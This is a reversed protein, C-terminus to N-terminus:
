SRQLQELLDIQEQREADTDVPDEPALEDLIELQEEETLDDSEQPQVNVIQPVPQAESQGNISWIFTSLLYVAIVVLITLITLLIIYTKNM